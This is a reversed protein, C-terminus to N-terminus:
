DDENRLNIANHVIRRQQKKNEVSRLTETLSQRTWVKVNSTELIWRNTRKATWPIRLIHRFRKMEIAKIRDENEKKITWSECGYM